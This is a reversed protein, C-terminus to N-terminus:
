LVELFLQFLPACNGAIHQVINEEIQVREKIKLPPKQDTNLLLIRERFRLLIPALEKDL